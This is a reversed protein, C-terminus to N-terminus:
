DYRIVERRRTMRELARPDITVGLGPGSLPQARGGYRFTIDEAILNEALVHRDYSGEVYQFGRVHAAM